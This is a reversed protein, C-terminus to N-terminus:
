TTLRSNLDRRPDKKLAGSPNGTSNEAYHENLSLTQRSIWRPSGNITHAHTHIASNPNYSLLCAGGYLKSLGVVMEFKSGDKAGEQRRFV